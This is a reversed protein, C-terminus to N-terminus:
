NNESLIPLIETEYHTIVDRLTQINAEYEPARVKIQLEKVVIRLNKSPLKLHIYTSEFGVSISADNPLSIASCESNSIELAEIIRRIRRTNYSMLSIKDESFEEDFLNWRNFDVDFMLGKLLKKSYVIDTRVKDLIAQVRDAEGLRRAWTDKSQEILVEIVSLAKM